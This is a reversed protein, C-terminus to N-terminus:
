KEKITPKKDAARIVKKKGKKDVETIYPEDKKTRKKYYSYGSKRIELVLGEDRLERMIKDMGYGDIGLEQGIASKSYEKAENNTFFQKVKVYTSLMI